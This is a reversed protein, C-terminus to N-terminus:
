VRYKKSMKKEADAVLMDFKKLYEKPISERISQAPEWTRSSAESFGKWKIQVRVEQKGKNWEVRSGCVDEVFFLPEPPEGLYQKLETIKYKRTKDVHTQDLHYLTYTGDHAAAIKRPPWSGPHNIKHRSKHQVIAWDGAQLVKPRGHEDAFAKVKAHRKELDKKAMEENRRENQKMKEKIRDVAEAVEQQSAEQRSGPEVPDTVPVMPPALHISRGLFAEAPTIGLRACVRINHTYAAERVMDRWSVPTPFETEKLGARMIARLSRITREAIGNGESHLPVSRIHKIGREEALRALAAQTEPGNDTSLTGPNGLIATVAKFAEAAEDATNREMPTAVVFSTFRDVVVYASHIGGADDPISMVDAHVAAWPKTRANSYVRPATLPSRTGKATCCVQCNHIFIETDDLCGSWGYGLARM